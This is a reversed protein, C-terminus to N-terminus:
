HSAVYSVFTNLISQWGARQMETPNEGEPNFSEIITYGTDTKEFVVHVMRGDAIQYSIKEYPIVETYTGGFDFGQTGDKSEMRTTFIGGVRLDNTAHPACWDDSTYCWKTIHAPKTWYEWIKEIPAESHAHITIQEM